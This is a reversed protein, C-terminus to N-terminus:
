TPCPEYLLKASTVANIGPKDGSWSAESGDLVGSGGDPDLAINLSDSPIRARHGFDM